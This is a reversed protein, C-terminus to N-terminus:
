QNPELLQDLVQYLQHATFPKALYTDFGNELAAERDGPLAYATIALMPPRPTATSERLAQLFDIGTPGEGLHIDVLVVDFAQKDMQALGKAASTATHVTGFDQLIHRIFQQTEQNDEVLLIQLARDSRLLTQPMHGLESAPRDVAPSQILPFTLVFASGKNKESSVTVTGGQLDILRKTIALGLGVGEHSRTIGTSEQTFEDYIQSLFTDAIGVGTDKVSIRVEDGDTHVQLLVQGKETFKIANDVLNILVRSLCTRDALIHAATAPAQVILPLDKKQAIPRFMAAVQNIEAVVDLPRLNLDFSGSELMSLDLIANLTNHLRNGSWIIPKIFELFRKPMETELISAYGLISTLPTRIEHSLNALLASKLKAVEEAKTKAQILETEFNKQATIDRGSVYLVNDNQNAQGIWRVWKTSGDKCLVQTEIHEVAKAHLLSLLYRQMLAQTDAVLMQVLPHGILADTPYGLTEELSPNVRRITGSFDTIVLMDRSLSFFHNLEDQAKRRQEIHEQERIARRVVHPLQWFAYESKVIYDDAGAKMTEVAVAESGHSTMVVVPFPADHGLAQVLLLGKGDPLLYDVIVASPQQADLYTQAEKLSRAVVVAERFGADEFARQILEVHAVDDEVLLIPQKRHSM